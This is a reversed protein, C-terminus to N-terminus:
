KLNYRKLAGELIRVIMRDYTIGQYRSIISFVDETSLSPLPNIELVYPTGREDVRVDVRGFDRCEIANYAALSVDIIKKM